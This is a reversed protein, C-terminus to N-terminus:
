CDFTYRREKNEIWSSLYSLFIDGFTSFSRPIFSSYKHFVFIWPFFFFFDLSIFIWSNCKDGLVIFYMNPQSNPDPYLNIVM